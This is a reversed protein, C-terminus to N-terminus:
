MPLYLRRLVNLDVAASCMPCAGHDEVAKTICTTCFLHGCPTSSLDKSIINELCVACELQLPKAASGDIDNQSVGDPKTAGIEVELTISNNNVYGNPPKLLEERARM